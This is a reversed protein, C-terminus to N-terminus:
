LSPLPDAVLIGKAQWRTFLETAVTYRDRRGSLDTEPLEVLVANAPHRAALRGRETASIVDYPPAIVQDLPAVEPRYRLGQFPEFRPV